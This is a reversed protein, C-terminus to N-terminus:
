CVRSAAVWHCWPSATIKGILLNDPMHQNSANISLSKRWSGAGGVGVLWQWMGEGEPWNQPHLSHCSGHMIFLSSCHHCHVIFLLSWPCRHSHIVSSKQYAIVIVWWWQVAAVAWLSWWGFLLLLLCCRHSCIIAVIVSLLCCRYNNNNDETMTERWWRTDKNRTM